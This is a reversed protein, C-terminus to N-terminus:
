EVEGGKEEVKIRKDGYQDVVTSEDMEVGSNHAARAIAHAATPATIVVFALCLLAKVGIPTFGLCVFTGVLIFCTGVTVCKTAAQLRNFVDPFRVLGFCGFFDFVLGIGVLIIGLTESM